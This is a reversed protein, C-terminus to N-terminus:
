VFVEECTLSPDDALSSDLIDSVPRGDHLRQIFESLLSSMDVVRLWTKTEIHESPIYSLNGTYIREFLGEEYAEDFEKIGNTFLAHSVVCDCSCAGMEKLQRFTDLLSGGTGLMDDVVICDKNEVSPGLWQHEEIENRGSVPSTILSRRKYFMGIDAALQSSYPIARNMAGADPAVFVTNTPDINKDAKLAQLFERQGNLNDVGLLPVANITQPAHLEFSVISNVGMAELEQLTMAANLSERARRDHQRSGYLLPMIVTIRYAKGACACLVSKLAAHHDAPSCHQIQGRISYTVSYNFPDCLIYLDANRVSEPLVAKCEGSSFWVIEVPLKVNGGNSESLRECIKDGWSQGWGDAGPMVIIKLPHHM